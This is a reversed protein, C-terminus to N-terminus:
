HNYNYLDFVFEVATKKSNSKLGASYKSLMFTHMPSDNLWVEINPYNRARHYLGDKSLVLKRHDDPTIEGFVKSMVKDKTAILFGIKWDHYVNFLPEIKKAIFGDNFDVDLGVKRFTDAFDNIMDQDFKNWFDKGWHLGASDVIMTKRITRPTYSQILDSHALSAIAGASAGYVVLDKNYVFYNSYNENLYKLSLEINRRGTHYVKRGEYESIHSGSHVDGTCYPFYIKSHDKFLNRESRNATFISYSGIVPYRHLWPFPSPNKFCSKFDWCVGGGMFEIYLKKTDKLEVFVAYPKGDGCFAGPIEIEKWDASFAMTSLISCFLTVIKKM